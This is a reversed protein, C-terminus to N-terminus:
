IFDQLFEELIKKKSIREFNIFSGWTLFLHCEIRCYIYLCLTKLPIYKVVKLDLNVNTFRLNHITYDVIM